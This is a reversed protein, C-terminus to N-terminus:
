SSGPQKIAQKGPKKKDFLAPPRGGDRDNTTRTMMKV